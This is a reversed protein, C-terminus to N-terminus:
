EASAPNEKKPMAQKISLNVRKMKDVEIVKVKVRDGVKVVDEVNKVFSDALESVHILGEKNPLIECFAGFNMLRTIKGEYIKGVEAEAILGHVIDIARQSAKSDSSAISVRGDDDIDIKVGTDAVIQKIIKGGPGIIDKIKDQPVMIVTIRPAYKSIDSRPQALTEEIKDLIFLRAEKAQALAKKLIEINIGEIKSDLQIATVGDRTGTVKFDMDGLHDELGLIDTLVAVDNGEKILGMAIGSVPKLIPVGADMLALTGACVTAMSSSGNSELIESVLRVTYPFKEKSPMVPSLAREALAGHGIERRGPGRIPRVEGVSFSPFNYHLMFTKTSEGVLADIRQEDASTGLTVVGLSQTQGRTFVASGHTQPLFSVESTIPRIDTYSRGDVRKKNELIMKRVQEKEVKGLMTAVELGSYDSEDTVLAQDLDNAIIALQEIREEKAGIQYVENLRDLSLEKVKEYLGKPTQKFEIRVKQKGCKKAFQEQIAILGLLKEYGFQMADLMVEESVQYAGSEIMNIGNKSGAIVIELDSEKVQEFTPNVIFQNNIRGIKVAGIPGSFPIDSITLATSAGIISLIDPDNVGDCSLVMAFIQIENYFGKPFLPRIPRDILRSTLIEKESSRGERKFFGGPIKGAAYTKEKYEVTLPLFDINEKAEKSMVATVLVVTGGCTVTVSANAQKALKGSEIVIPDDSLKTEIKDIM